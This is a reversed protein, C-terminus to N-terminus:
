AKGKLMGRLTGEWKKSSREQAVYIPISIKIKKGSTDATKEDPRESELRLYPVKM